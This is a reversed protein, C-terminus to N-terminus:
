AAHLKQNKGRAMCIILKSYIWPGVRHPRRVWFPLPMTGRTVEHAFDREIHGRSKLLSQGFSQDQGCCSLPNKLMELGRLRSPEHRRHGLGQAERPPALLQYNQQIAAKYIHNCDYANDAGIYGGGDLKAILEPAVLPERDRMATLTLADIHGEGSRIEHLKYGKAIKSAGYGSKADRDKSCGGVTLPLADIRKFMCGAIASNFVDFLQSLVLWVGYTRLRRSMTSPSPLGLFPCTGHWNDMQCAWLIPRDHLAAWLLVLVIAGDSYIQGKKNPRLKSLPCVAEYLLAFLQGEM